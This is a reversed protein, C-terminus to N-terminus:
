KVITIILFYCTFTSVKNEFKSTILNIPVKIYVHLTSIKCFHVKYRQVKETHVNRMFPM